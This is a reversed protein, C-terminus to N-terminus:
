AKLQDAIKAIDPYQNTALLFKLVFKASIRGAGDKPAKIKKAMAERQAKLVELKAADKEGKILKDLNNVIDQFADNRIAKDGEVPKGAQFDDLLAQTEDAGKMAELVDNFSKANPFAVFKNKKEEGGTSKLTDLIATLDDPQEKSM